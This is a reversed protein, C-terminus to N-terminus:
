NGDRKRGSYLINMWTRELDYKRGFKKKSYFFKRRFPFKRSHSFAPQFPVNITRISSFEVYRQKILLM